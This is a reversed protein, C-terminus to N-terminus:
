KRLLIESIRVGSDVSAEITPFSFGSVFFIDNPHEHSEQELWFKRLFSAAGIELSSTADPIRYVSFSAGWQQLDRSGLHLAKSLQAAALTAIESDSAQWLATAIDERMHCGFVERGFTNKGIKGTEVSCAALPRKEDLNSRM